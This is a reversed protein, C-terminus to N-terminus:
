VAGTGALESIWMVHLDVPLSIHVDRIAAVSTNLDEIRIAVELLEDPQVDGVIFLPVRREAIRIGVRRVACSGPREANRGIPRSLIKERDILLGATEVFQCQISLNQSHEAFGTTTGSLEIPRM